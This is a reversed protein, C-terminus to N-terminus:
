FRFNGLQPTAERNRDRGPNPINFKPNIANGRSDTVSLALDAATDLDLLGLSTRGGSITVNAGIAANAVAKLANWHRELGKEKMVWRFEELMANMTAM